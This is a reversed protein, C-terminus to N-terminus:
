IGSGFIDPKLTSVQPKTGGEFSLESADFLFFWLISIVLCDTMSIVCGVVGLGVVM